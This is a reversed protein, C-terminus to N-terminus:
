ESYLAKVSGWTSEEVSVPYGCPCTANGNIIGVLGTATSMNFDCDAVQIVSAGPHPLVPYLCCLVSSGLVFYSIRLIPVAGAKCSGYALTIGTQSDGCGVCPGFPNQEGIWTAGTWCAPKPAMFESAMAGNTEHIVYVYTVGPSASINCSSGYQDAFVGITDSHATGATLWVLGFLGVARGFHTLRGRPRLLGKMSVRCM